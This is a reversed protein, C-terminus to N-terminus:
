VALASEVEALFSARDKGKKLAENKKDCPWQEDQGGETVCSSLDWRLTAILPRHDQFKSSHSERNRHGEQRIIEHIDGVITVIPKQM